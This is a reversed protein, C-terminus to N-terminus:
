TKDYSLSYLERHEATPGQQKDTRYTSTQMKSIGFKWGMGGGGGKAVM